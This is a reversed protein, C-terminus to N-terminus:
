IILDETIYKLVIESSLTACYTQYTDDKHIDALDSVCKVSFYEMSSSNQSKAAAYYVGYTEMDIGLYKRNQGKVFKNTFQESKIVAAGSAMAGQKIHTKRNVEGEVVEALKLEKRTIANDYIKQKIKTLSQGYFDFVNEQGIYFQRYLPAPEFEIDDKDEEDTQISGSGYDWAEKAIVVDGLEVAGKRGACIGSMILCRPQFSHILSDCLNTACVMGMTQQKVLIAKIAKGDNNIITKKYYTMGIIDNQIEWGWSYVANFEVDVATIIAVDCSRKAYYNIRTILDRKWKQDVPSYTIIGIPYSLLEKQLEGSLYQSLIFVAKPRHFPRQVSDFIFQIFLLGNDTSEVGENQDPIKLDLIVADYHHKQIEKMADNKCFVHCCIHGHEQLLHLIQRGKEDEDEVILIKM